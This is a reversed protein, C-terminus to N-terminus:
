KSKPKNNQQQEHPQQQIRLMHPFQFESYTFNDFGPKRINQQNLILVITIPLFHGYSIHM